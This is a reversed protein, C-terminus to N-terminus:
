KAFAFGFDLLWASFGVANTAISILPNIYGIEEGEHRELGMHSENMNQVCILINKISWFTSLILDM